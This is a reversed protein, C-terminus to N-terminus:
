QAETHNLWGPGSWVEKLHNTMWYSNPTEFNEVNSPWADHNGLAPFFEIESDAKGLIDKMTETVMKITDLVEQEKNDWMAHDASDGAWTVFSAKFKDKQNEAIFSLMSVFTDLPMDCNFDGWRGAKRTGEVYAEGKFNRCCFLSRCEAPAGERYLPDIHIDTFHLSNITKRPTKDAKIKKYIDNM